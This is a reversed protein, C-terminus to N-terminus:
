AQLAELNQGSINCTTYGSRVLMSDMLCVPKLYGGNGDCECESSWKWDGAM